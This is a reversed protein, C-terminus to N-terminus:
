NETLETFCFFDHHLGRPVLDPVLLGAAAPLLLIARERGHPSM